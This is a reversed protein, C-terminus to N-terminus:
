RLLGGGTCYPAAGASLHAEKIMMGARRVAEEVAKYDVEINIEM